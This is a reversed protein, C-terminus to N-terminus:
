DLSSKIKQITGIGNEQVPIVFSKRIRITNSQYSKSAHSYDTMGSFGDYLHIKYDKDIFFFRFSIRGGDGETKLEFIPVITSHQRSRQYIILYGVSNCNYGTFSYCCNEATKNHVGCGNSFSDVGTTSYYVEFEHMDQLRIQFVDSQPDFAYESSEGWKSTLSSNKDIKILEFTKTPPLRKETYGDVLDSDAAPHLELYYKWVDFVQSRLRASSDALEDQNSNTKLTVEQSLDSFLDTISQPGFPVSQEVPHVIRSLSDNNNYFKLSDKLFRERAIRLYKSWNEASDKLVVRAEEDTLKFRNPFNELHNRPFEYTDVLSDKKAQNNDAINHSNKCGILATLAIFLCIHQNLSIM